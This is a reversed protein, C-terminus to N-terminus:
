KLVEKAAKEFLPAMEELEARVEEGSKYVIELNSNNALKLFAEDEITAKIADHLKKVRDAPIGAPGVIMMTHPYAIDYGSEIATPVDPYYDLREKEFVCLMKIDGSQLESIASAPEILAIDINGALLAVSADKHGGYPVYASEVGAEDWLIAGLLQQFAAAAGGSWTLEGPHDKMYAILEELTNYPADARVFLANRQVSFGIIYEFDELKYTVDMVYPRLIFSAGWNLGITYGDPKANAIATTGPVAGGGPQNEIVMGQGLYGQIFSSIMRQSLDSNGGPSWSVIDTITKNPFDDSATDTPTTPAAPAAPATETTGSQCGTVSVLLMILIIVLALKPQLKKM